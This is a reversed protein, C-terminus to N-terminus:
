GCGSAACVVITCCTVSRMVLVGGSYDLVVTEAAQVPASGGLAKRTLLVAAVAIGLAWWPHHGAFHLGAHLVSSVM